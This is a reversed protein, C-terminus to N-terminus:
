RVSAARRGYDVNQTEKSAIMREQNQEYVQVVLRAQGQCDLQVRSLQEDPSVEDSMFFKVMGQVRQANLCGRELEYVSESFLELQLAAVKQGLAVGNVWRPKMQKEYMQKRQAMVQMADSCGEKRGDWKGDVAGLRTHFDLDHPNLRSLEIDKAKKIQERCYDAGQLSMQGVLVGYEINAFMLKHNEEYAQDYNKMYQFVQERTMDEAYAVTIIALALTSLIAALFTSRM